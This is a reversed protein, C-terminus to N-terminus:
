ISYLKIIEKLEEPTLPPEQVRRREFEKVADIGLEEVLRLTFEATMGGKPGNDGMCQPRIHKPDFDLAKWQQRGRHFCHGAQLEKWQFSKRCTFCSAYGQFDADKSRVWKSFVSWAKPGLYSNTNQKLQKKVLKKEKQKEQKLKLKARQCKQCNASVSPFLIPIHCTKCLKAKKTIPSPKQM